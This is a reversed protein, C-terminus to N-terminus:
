IETPNSLQGRPYKKDRISMNLAKVVNSAKMEDSLENVMIKRSYAGM